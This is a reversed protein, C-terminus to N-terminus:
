EDLHWFQTQVSRLSLAVCSLTMAQVWTGQLVVHLGSRLCSYLLIFFKVQAWGKYSQESFM